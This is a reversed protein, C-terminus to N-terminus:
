LLMDKSNLEMPEEFRKLAPAGSAVRASFLISSLGFEHAFCFLCVSIVNIYSVYKVWSMRARTFLSSRRKKTAESGKDQQSNNPTTDAAVATEPEKQEESM